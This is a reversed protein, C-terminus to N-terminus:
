KGKGPSLKQEPCAGKTDGHAQHAPWASENIEITQPNQNNGPPIHCITIKKDVPKPTPCVGKTDGHAQHAPWASENIEIQQPNQNNGPPIHCITIKKDEAPPAVTPTPCTGKTDGHAQHAPWASENIEIQQPNQNNGPPIHCITIKKDEAPPPPCAGMVDGHARHASWQDSPINMTTTTADANKHCITISNTAPVTNSQAAAPPCKGMLDGHARHASFQTLLIVMTTKTGDGNNHCIEVTSSSAATNSQACSVGAYDGHAQHTAWQSQKITMPTETGDGNKHCITINPDIEVPDTPNLVPCTGKFDGHAQHQAWTSQKVVITQQSGNSNKHCITIDPDFEIPDTGVIKPCTGKVDGHAQHQAWASQKVVITQNSGDANKHCITIDPDYEVPDTPNLKPCAGMVDGHAQHQAWTSQKVVITQSSGNSNKHCITIDPDPTPDVPQEVQCAGEFDGHAQHVAWDTENITITEVTGRDKRHCIIKTKIVPVEQKVIGSANATGFSNTAKVEIFNNSNLTLNGNFDIIGTSPNFAYNSVFNGNFKVELQSNSSISTVVAKFPYVTLSTTQPSPSPNLIVVTPPPQTKKPPEFTIITSKADSSRGNSASVNILNNGISLTVDFDITGSVYNFTVPVGNAVVTVQSQSTVGTVKAKVKYTPVASKYPNVTPDTITVSVGKAANATATVVSTPNYIVLQSKADQGFNNTGTISITNTGKALNAQMYLQKDTPNYSFATFPQANLQVSINEAGSVNLVTAYLDIVSQTATVKNAGPTTINVVPPVGNYNIIATKSDSGATNTASVVVINNGVSLPAVFSITKAFWSYNTIPNGNFTVTVENRNNVNYVKAVVTFNTIVSENYPTTPPNTINVVPPKVPATTNAVVSNTPTISNTVVTNTQLQNYNNVNTTPKSKSGGGLRINLSLSSYHYYDKVCGLWDNNSGQIGDLYDSYTGQPFTIKHEWLLSIYNNFRYGLGIGCSPSWTLVNGKKSGTAFSEYSGDLLLDHSSIVSAKGGTSDVLYYNYMKDGDLLNIGTRYSTFGIGAWLNLLVNTRERLRNFCIQLELAGEAVKTKYNNYIYPAVGAMSTDYNVKPNYTGNLSPNDKINYNRGYDLGYTNGWLGRGKIALSFFNTNNEAIGKELTFGGAFGPLSRVDAVQWMAGMNLGLRWSNYYRETHKQKQAQAVNLLGLCFLILTIFYNKKM